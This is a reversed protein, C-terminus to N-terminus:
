VFFFFFLFLFFFFLCGLQFPLFSVTVASSMITYMSFGIFEVLFSSSRIFLNPLVGPYFHISLFRLCEQVGVVFSCFCCDPFFIGNSIAVFFIFGRPIFSVLSTFSRYESFQVVSFFLILASVLPLM